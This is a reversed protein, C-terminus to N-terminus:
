SVVHLECLQETFGGAAETARLTFGFIGTASPTGSVVGVPSLTVGPPLVGESLSFRIPPRGLITTLQRAYNAGRVGDPLRSSSTFYPQSFNRGLFDANYVGALEDASLARDYIAVEDIRGNFLASADDVSGITVPVADAGYVLGGPKEASAVELGNVFIRKAKGDFSVALHTWENLPIETPAQLGHGGHSWFQVRNNILRMAWTNGFAGRAVVSHALIDETAPFVWGEATFREPKLAASDPIRVHVTGDFDFAGGVKGSATVRPATAVTGAFFTGHHGGILDGADMEGRWTAILGLPIRVASAFRARVRRSRDMTLLAPNAPGSLDGSWGLFTSEEVPVATLSVTDGLGYSLKMPTITVAGGAGGLATLRPRLSGKSKPDTGDLFEDLNSLGDGDPDGECRQSTTNGFHAIEWSDPLGDRDSDLLLGAPASTVSGVPNTVVVSYRGEDDAAVNTLVLSDGTAGPIDTGNLKWQFTVARADAVTVSFSAIDAPAAIQIAPQGLIQPPVIPSLSRGAMHGCRDYSYTLM